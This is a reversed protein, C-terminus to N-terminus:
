SGGAQCAASGASRLNALHDPLEALEPQHWGPCATDQRQCQPQSRPLEARRALAHVARVARAPRQSTNGEARPRRAQSFTSAPVTLRESFHPDSREQQQQQQNGFGQGNANPDPFDPLGHSRMCQTFSLDQQLQSSGSTSSSSSPSGGCAAALMVIGATVALVGARRPWARCGRQRAGTAEHEHSASHDAAHANRDKKMGSRRERQQADPIRQLLCRRGHGKCRKTPAQYTAATMITVVTAFDGCGALRSLSALSGAHAQRPWDPDQAAPRPIRVQRQAGHAHAERQKVTRQEEEGAYCQQCDGVGQGPVGGAGRPPMVGATTFATLRWAIRSAFSRSATIVPWCAVIICWSSALQPMASAMVATKDIARPQSTAPRTSRGSRVMVAAVCRMLSCFRCWRSATAPGSSSSLRSPSVM